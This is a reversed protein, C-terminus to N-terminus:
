ACQRLALWCALGSLQRGKHLMSTHLCRRVNNRDDLSSSRALVSSLGSSVSIVAKTVPRGTTEAATALLVKLVEAAVEEPYLRGSCLKNLSPPGTAACAWPAFM